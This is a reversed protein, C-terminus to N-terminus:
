LAKLLMPVCAAIGGLRPDLGPVVHLCSTLRGVVGGGCSASIGEDIRGMALLSVVTRRSHFGSIARGTPGPQDLLHISDRRDCLTHELRRWRFEITEVYIRVAM